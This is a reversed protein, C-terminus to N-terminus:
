PQPEPGCDHADPLGRPEGTPYAVTAAEPVCDFFHRGGRLLVSRSITQYRFRGSPLEGPLASAALVVRGYRRILELRAPTAQPEGGPLSVSVFRRKKPELTVRVTWTRGADVDESLAFDVVMPGRPPRRAVWAICLFEPSRALRVAGLDLSASPRQSRSGEGRVDAYRDRTSVVAGYDSCDVATPWDGQDERPIPLDGEALEEPTPDDAFAREAPTPIREPQAPRTDVDPFTV